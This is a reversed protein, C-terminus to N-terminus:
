MKIVKVSEGGLRAFYIGSPYNQMNVHLAAQGAPLQQRLLSRGLLDFVEFVSAEKLANFQFDATTTIPNPFLTLDNAQISPHVSATPLDELPYYWLGKQASGLILNDGSICLSFALNPEYLVGGSIDIWTKGSDPSYAEIGVSTSSGVFLHKGDFALSEWGGSITITDQKWTKGSDFSLNIFRYDLTGSLVAILSGNVVIPGGRQGTPMWDTGMDMSVVLGQYGWGYIKSGMFALPEYSSDTIIKWSTGSDISRYIGNYYTTAFLDSGNLYLGEFSHGFKNPVKIWTAGSDSSRWLDAPENYSPYVNDWGAHSAAFIFAGNAVISLVSTNITGDGLLNWNVGNDTSVVIGNAGPDVTDFSSGFGAYVILGNTALCNIQGGDSQIWQCRADGIAILLCYSVIFMMVMKKSM